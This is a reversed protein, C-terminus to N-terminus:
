RDPRPRPQPDIRTLDIIEPPPVEDGPHRYQFTITGGAKVADKIQDSQQATVALTALDRGDAKSDYAVILVNSVICETKIKNIGPTRTVRCVDVRSGPLVMGHGRHEFYVEHAVFPEPMVLRTRSTEPNTTPRVAVQPRTHTAAARGRLYLGVGLFLAFLTCATIAPLYRRM